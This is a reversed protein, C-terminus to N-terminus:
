PLPSSYPRDIGPPIRWPNERIITIHRGTHEHSECRTFAELRLRRVRDLLENFPKGKILGELVSRSNLGVPNNRLWLVVPIGNEWIANMPHSSRESGHSPPASELICAAWPDGDRLISYHRLVNVKGCDMWYVKHKDILRDGYDDLVVCLDGHTNPTPWRPKLRAIYHPNEICEKARLVVPCVSGIPEKYESPFEWQDVPEHLMACPVVIELWINDRSIGYWKEVWILLNVVFSSVQESPIHRGRELPHVSPFGFLWAKLFHAGEENASDLLVM